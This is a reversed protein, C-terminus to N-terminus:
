SGAGVLRTKLSDMEAEEVREEHDDKESYEPKQIKKKFIASGIYDSRSYVLLATAEPENHKGQGGQNQGTECSGSYDDLIIQRIWTSPFQPLDRHGERSM